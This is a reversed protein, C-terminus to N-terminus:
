LPPRENMGGAGRGRARKTINKTVVVARSIRVTEIAVDHELKADSTYWNGQPHQAREATGRGGPGLPASHALGRTTRTPVM